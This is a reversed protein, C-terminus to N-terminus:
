LSFTLWPPDLRPERDEEDADMKDGMLALATKLEKKHFGNDALCDANSFSLM